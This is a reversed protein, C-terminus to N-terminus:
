RSQRPPILGEKRLDHIVCVIAGIDWPGNIDSAFPEFASWIESGEGRPRFLFASGCCTQPIDSEAGCEVLVDGIPRGILNARYQLAWSSVVPRDLVEALRRWDSLTQCIMGGWTDM